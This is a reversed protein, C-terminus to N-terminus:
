FFFGPNNLRGIGSYNDYKIYLFKNQGQNFRPGNGNRRSNHNDEKAM